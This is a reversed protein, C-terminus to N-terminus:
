PEAPRGAAAEAPAVRGKRKPVRDFEDHIEGVLEELLDEVTAIGLNHGDADQVVAMLKHERQMRVLVKDAPTDHTTYLVSRLVDTVPEAHLQADSFRLLDKAHVFGLVHDFDGDTIPIRSLGTRGCLELAQLLTATKPLHQVLEAPTIVRGVDTETFDFLESIVREEFQEVEGEDVGMRVLAEIHAQTVVPLPDTGRVGFMFLLARALMTFIWELPRLVVQVVRLVGAISLAIGQAHRVAFTKPTIEAFVLVLFTMVGVAVAPGITGLLQLFVLSSLVSAAINVINNGVLVTTLIGEPHELLGQLRRARANGDEALHRVVARDTSIIATESMSFFASLFLLGVLAALQLLTLHDVAM